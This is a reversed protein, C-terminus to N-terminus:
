HLPSRQLLKAVHFINLSPFIKPNKKESMVKFHTNSFHIYLTFNADKLTRFLATGILQLYDSQSSTELQYHPSKSSKANKMKSTQLEYTLLQFNM